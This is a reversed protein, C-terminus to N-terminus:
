RGSFFRGSFTGTVAYSGAYVDTDSDRIRQAGTDAMTDLYIRTDGDGYAYVDGDGDAM